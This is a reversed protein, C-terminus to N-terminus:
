TVSANGSFKTAGTEGNETVSAPSIFNNIREACVERVMRSLVTSNLGRLTYGNTETGKRRKVEWPLFTTFKTNALVGTGANRETPLRASLDQLM